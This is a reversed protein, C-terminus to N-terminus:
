YFPDKRPGAISCSRVTGKSEGDYGWVAMKSRADPTVTWDEDEQPELSSSAHVHCTVSSADLKVTQSDYYTQERRWLAWLADVDM